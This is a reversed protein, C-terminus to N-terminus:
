KMELKWIGEWDEAPPNAIMKKCREVHLLSVRDDPNLGLCDQFALLASDWKNEKFEQYGKGFLSMVKERHPFTKETHYDLVEFIRRPKTKGKFFVRDVERISYTGQLEYFTYECILIKSGYYKCANEIRSATNVGDGVVTYDVRDPSGINGCVVKASNLGIGMDIPLRGVSKRNENSPQLSNIMSIAARVGRDAHDEFSIPAGFVAMTSDGIYKDLMGKEKHICDVMITFHENLFDVTEEAGLEETLTTFNRIDSFLITVEFKATDMVEKGTEMLTSVIDSGLYRAMTARMREEDKKKLFQLELHNRVRACVEDKQFPKLIYDVGGAAFGEVIDETERKATIFIVPINKTKPNNKIRRCTEFGSIGPMMVDLLILDPIEDELIELAMQGDTAVVIEYNNELSDVLIHINAPTDDVILLTANQIEDM